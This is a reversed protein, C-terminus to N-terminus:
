DKRRPNEQTWELNRWYKDMCNDLILGDNWKPDKSGNQRKRGSKQVELHGNKKRRGNRTHTMRGSRIHTM